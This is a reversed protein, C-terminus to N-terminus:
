RTSFRAASMLASFPRTKLRILCLASGALISIEIPTACATISRTSRPEHLEKRSRGGPRSEGRTPAVSKDGLRQKGRGGPLAHDRSEERPPSVRTAWGSNGRGGPLAHGRSEERPPSVRTAWGSNGAVALSRTAAVKGAHAQRICDRSLFESPAAVNRDSDADRTAAVKRDRSSQALYLDTPIFVPGGNKPRHRSNVQKLGIALIREM